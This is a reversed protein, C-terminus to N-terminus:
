GLLRPPATSGHPKPAQQAPAPEDPPLLQPPVPPALHRLTHRLAAPGSRGLQPRRDAPSLTDQEAKQQPCNSTLMWPRTRCSGTSGRPACPAPTKSARPNTHLSALLLIRKKPGSKQQTDICKAEEWLGDQLRSNLPLGRKPSCSAMSESPEWRFTCFRPGHRMKKHLYMDRKTTQPFIRDAVFLFCASDLRLDRM